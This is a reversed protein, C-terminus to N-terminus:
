QYVSVFKSPVKVSDANLLIIITQQGMPHMFEVSMSEPGSNCHTNEQPASRLAELTVIAGMPMMESQDENYSMSNM